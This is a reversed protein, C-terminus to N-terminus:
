PRQLNIQCVFPLVYIVKKMKGMENNIQPM